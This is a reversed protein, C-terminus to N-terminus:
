TSLPAQHLCTETTLHIIFKFIKKLLYVEWNVKLNNIGQVTTWIFTTTPKLWLIDILPFCSSIPNRLSKECEIRWSGFYNGNYFRLVQASSVYVCVCAYVVDAVNSAGVALYICADLFVSFSISLFFEQAGDDHLLLLDLGSRFKSEHDRKKVSVHFKCVLVIWSAFSKFLLRSLSLSLFM